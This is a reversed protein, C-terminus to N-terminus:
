IFLWEKLFVNDAYSFASREIFVNVSIITVTSSVAFLQINKDYIQENFHLMWKFLLWTCFSIKQMINQVLNFPMAIAQNDLVLALNKIKKLGLPM